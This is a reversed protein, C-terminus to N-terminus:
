KGEFWRKVVVFAGVSFAVLLIIGPLTIVQAAFMGALYLALIVLIVIFSISPINKM